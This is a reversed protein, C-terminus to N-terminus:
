PRQKAGSLSQRRGPARDGDGERGQSTARAQAAWIRGLDPGSGAWIQRLDQGIVCPVPSM